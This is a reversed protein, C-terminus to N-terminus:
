KRQIERLAVNIIGGGVGLMMASDSSSGRALAIQSNKLATKKETVLGGSDRDSKLSPTTMNSASDSIYTPETEQRDGREWIIDMLM